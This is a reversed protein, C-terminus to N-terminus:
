HVRFYQYAIARHWGASDLMEDHRRLPWRGQVVHM